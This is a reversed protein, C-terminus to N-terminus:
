VVIEDVDGRKTLLPLIEIGFATVDYKIAANASFGDFRDAKMRYFVAVFAGDALTMFDADSSGSANLFKIGLLVSLKGRRVSCIKEYPIEM